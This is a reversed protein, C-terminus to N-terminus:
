FPALQSMVLHAICAATGVLGIPLPSQSSQPSHPHFLPTYGPRNPCFDLTHSPMLSSVIFFTLWRLRAAGVEWDLEREICLWEAPTSKRVVYRWVLRGMCYVGEERLVFACVSHGGIGEGGDGDGEECGEEGAEGEDYTALRAECGEEGRAEVRGLM